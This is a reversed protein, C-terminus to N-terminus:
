FVHREYCRQYQSLRATIKEIKANTTFVFCDGMVSKSETKSIIMYMVLVQSTLDTISTVYNCLDM